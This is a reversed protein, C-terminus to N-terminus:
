RGVVAIMREYVKRTVRVDRLNYERVEALRGAGYLEWVRSGDAEDTKSSEIGLAWALDDLSVRGRDGFFWRRMTDYIGPPNYGTFDVVPKTVVGNVLCRQYIFPLDFGAVNHGVIEDTLPDFGAMMSVFDNLAKAETEENGNEDIGFTYERGPNLGSGDATFEAKPGVHAAISLIRGSTAGLSGLLYCREAEKEPDKLYRDIQEIGMNGLELNRRLKKAIRERYDPLAITEIDITYAQPITPAEGHTERYKEVDVPRYETAVFQRQDNFVNLSGVIGWLGPRIDGHTQLAESWVRLTLSGTPNNAICDFFPQGRQTTKRRASTVTVILWVEENEQLEPIPVNGKKM